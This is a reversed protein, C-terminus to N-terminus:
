KKDLKTGGNELRNLFARAERGLVTRYGLAAARRFQAVALDRQGTWALLLGLHYRVSQSRPFRRALPGLRGFARDLHDMDFLGVAAAVQAEDDDPHLRAARAYLREAAHQHFQEQAHVGADLLADPRTPAFIPYGQSFFQPHLLNDAKVEYVTDRGVKKATRLAAVADADYGAWIRALGLNFQVVPDRPRDRGLRELADLSHDPWSRFAARISAAAPSALYIAAPPRGPRAHPQRPHQRTALTVGVVATAAAASAAAVAALVRTRPTM